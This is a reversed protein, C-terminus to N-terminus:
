RPASTRVGHQIADLRNRAVMIDRKLRGVMDAVLDKGTAAAEDVMVKLKWLPSDRLAELDGDCAALHEEAQAIRRTLRLRTSELDGGPVAEPSQEWSQLILRLRDEDGLAYARNAEVMLRHRRDRAAEDGALDPHIAKAVDRFLKRVADSTLRPAATTKSGAPTSASPSRRPDDEAFGALEAIIAREFEDLEEHLRGVQRQYKIRFAVLDVKIRDLEAQREALRADLATATSRLAEIERHPSRESRALTV